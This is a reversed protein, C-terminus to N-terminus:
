NSVMHREFAELATAGRGAAKDGYQKAQAATSAWVYFNPMGGNDRDMLGSLANMGSSIARDLNYTNVTELALTSVSQTAQALAAGAADIATIRLTYRTNAKLGALVFINTGVSITKGGGAPI